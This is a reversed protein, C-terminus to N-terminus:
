PTPLPVAKRCESTEMFDLPCEWSVAKSKVDKGDWQFHLTIFGYSSVLYDYISFTYTQFLPDQHWDSSQDPDFSICAHKEDPSFLTLSCEANSLQLIAAEQNGLSKLPPFGYGIVSQTAVISNQTLKTILFFQPQVSVYSFSFHYKEAVPLSNNASDPLHDGSYFKAQFKVQVPLNTKWVIVRDDHSDVIQIEMVLQTPAPFELQLWILKASLTREMEDYLLRVPEVIREVNGQQNTFSLKVQFCNKWFKLDNNISESIAIQFPMDENNIIEIPEGNATNAVLSVDSQMTPQVFLLWHTGPDHNIRYERGKCYDAPLLIENPLYYGSVIQIPPSTEGSLTIVDPKANWYHINLAKYYGAISVINPDGIPTWVNNNPLFPNLYQFLKKTAEEMSFFVDINKNVVNNEWEIGREPCTLAVIVSLNENVDTAPKLENRIADFSDNSVLKGDTIIVLYKQAAGENQLRGIGKSIGASIDQRTGLTGPPEANKFTSNYSIPIEEQYGNNDLNDNGFSGAGLIFNESRSGPITRFIDLIFNVVEYRRSGINDCGDSGMSNSNDILFEVHTKVTDSSRAPSLKGYIFTPIEDTTPVPTPRPPTPDCTAFALSLIMISFM